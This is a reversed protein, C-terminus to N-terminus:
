INFGVHRLSLEHVQAYVEPYDFCVQTQLWFLRELSDHTFSAAADLLPDKFKPDDAIEISRRVNRGILNGHARATSKSQQLGNLAGREMENLGGVVPLPHAANFNKANWNSLHFASYVSKITAVFAGLSDVADSEMVDRYQKFNDAKAFCGSPYEPKFSARHPFVNTLEKDQMVLCPFGPYATLAPEPCPLFVGKMM